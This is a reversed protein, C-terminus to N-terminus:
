RDALVLRTPSCFPGLFLLARVSGTAVYIVNAISGVSFTRGTASRMAVQAAQLYPVMSSSYDPALQKQKGWPCMFMSGYAHIDYWVALRTGLTSFLNSLAQM